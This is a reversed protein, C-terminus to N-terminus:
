SNPLNAAGSPDILDARRVFSGVSSNYTVYWYNTNSQTLSGSVSNGSTDKGLYMELHLMHSGGANNAIVTGIVDGRHVTTQGQLISDTPRIECYRAVSGDSNKVEVAGTGAYFTNTNYRIVQGDTMAYVKTGVAAIFDIGAHSRGTRAAGFSRGGATPDLSYAGKLPDLWSSHRDQWFTSVSGSPEEPIPIPEPEPTPAPKPDPAPTPTPEPTPVPTPDPTPIPTPEETPAPASGGSGTSTNAKPIILKQGIQLKDTTLNNAEKIAAVTTDNKAAIVWLTDNAQVTYAGSTNNNVGSQDDIGMYKSLTTKTQPGVIGDADLGHIKQFYLVASLTKPGYIGDVGYTDIGLANLDQQLSSVADGKSSMSLNVDGYRGAACCIGTTVIMFGAVLALVLVLKLRLLKEVLFDGGEKISERAYAM